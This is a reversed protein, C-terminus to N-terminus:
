PLVSDRDSDVKFPDTTGWYLLGVQLTEYLPPDFNWYVYTAFDGMGNQVHFQGKSCNHASKPHNWQNTGTAACLNYLVRASKLLALMVEEDNIDYVNCDECHNMPAAPLNSPDWIKLQSFLSTTFILLILFLSIRM